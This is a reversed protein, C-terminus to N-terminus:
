VRRSQTYIRTTELGQHGLHDGIEKLSIGSNILHTACAHRLAHPGCHKINLKMPKLYRNVIMFVAGKGLARHPSRRCLFVERCPCSNQRVDKVYRLIANGVIKTLPFTQPKSNKARRLNLTENKWDIDDLRLKEVESRRLGYVSLLLLIAYDRIHTPKDDAVKSLLKKVDDWSPALPLSEDRYVRPAKISDALGPQCIAKGELYRLFSRLVTAYGQISRRSYGDIDHKKVLFKDIAIPTLKNLSHYQTAIGVLFIKLQTFRTKITEESLGQEHRMYDIYKILSEEFLIPSRSTKELCGLKDFWDSADHIFRAKAFISYYTKRKYNKGKAWHEAAKEIENESVMRLKCFDLYNMVVLLYQAIRRLSSNPAGNDHWYQLYLLREKLLPANAHRKLAKRREFIKNLLPIKEEPLIELRNIKKLFDTAYRIFMEKGCRSFKARKQPHNYQYRGWRNAAEEIQDFTIITDESKLHLFEVIRLLYEAISKLTSLSRGRDSHDQIYALREKLLPAKLHKKAYYSRKIIQEFM